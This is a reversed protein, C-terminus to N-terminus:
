FGKSERWKEFKTYDIVKKEGTVTDKINERKQTPNWGEVVPILCCRCNPHFPLDPHNDLDYINGDYSACEDCTNGELTADWMVKNVVGSNAYCEDQAMIVAKTVETNILRKAKYAGGGFDKKIQRALKEPSTGKILAKEVDSKVRNALKSTNDWIRDSFTKGEVKNQIAKKVFEPKLAAFNTTINVGKDITYATTSYTEDITDIVTNTITEVEKVGLENMQRVLKKELEKLVKIRQQKGIKLEGNVTYDMYIKAIDGRISNLNRKYGRLIDITNKITQKESDTKIKLIEKQLKDM